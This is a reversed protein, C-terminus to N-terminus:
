AEQAAAAARRPKRALHQRAPAKANSLELLRLGLSYRPEGVRGRALDSICAQSCGVLKALQPQTLAHRVQVQTIVTKWDM